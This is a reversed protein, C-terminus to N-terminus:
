RSAPVETQADLYEKYSVESDRYMKLARRMLASKRYGELSKADLWEVLSKDLYVVTSVLKEGM